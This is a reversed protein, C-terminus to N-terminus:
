FWLEYQPDLISTALSPQVEYVYEDYETSIFIQNEKALYYDKVLSDIYADVKKQEVYFVVNGGWGNGVM